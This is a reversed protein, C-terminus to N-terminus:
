TFGPFPLAEGMPVARGLIEEMNLEGIIDATGCHYERSHELVDEGNL